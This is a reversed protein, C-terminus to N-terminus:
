YSGLSIQLKLLEPADQDFFNPKASEKKTNKGLPVCRLTDKWSFTKRKSVWRLIVEIVTNKRNWHIRLM